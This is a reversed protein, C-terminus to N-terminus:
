SSPFYGEAEQIQSKDLIFLNTTAIGPQDPHEHLELTYRGPNVDSINLSGSFAKGGSRKLSTRLHACEKCTVNPQWSRNSGRDFIVAEITVSAKQKSAVVSPTCRFQVFPGSRFLDAIKNALTVHIVKLLELEKFRHIRGSSYYLIWTASRRQM